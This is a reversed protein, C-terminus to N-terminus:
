RVARVANAPGIDGVRVQCALERSIARVRGRVEITVPGGYPEAARLTVVRGPRIGLSDLYRLLGADEEPVSFVTAQQGVELDAISTSQRPEIHGDATPMAHGHPCSQPAELLQALREEVVPSTAHELRCAEEHVQDWEMHLYDTLFREWLRHRRVVSLAQLRGQDTLAVGKRPEYVALGRESLKRVMENASVPSVSLHEALAPVTACGGDETLKFIGELYEDVGASMALTM